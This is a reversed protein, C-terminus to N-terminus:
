RTFLRALYHGDAQQSVIDTQWGPSNVSDGNPTAIVTIQDSASILRRVLVPLM